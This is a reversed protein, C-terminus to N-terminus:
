IKHNRPVVKSLGITQNPFPALNTSAIRGLAEGPELCTLGYGREAFPLSAKGTGCGVELIRADHPIGTAGAIDAILEDPYEPRIEDYLEAIADFSQAQGPGTAM